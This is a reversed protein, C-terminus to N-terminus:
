RLKSKPGAYRVFKSPSVTHVAICLKVHRFILAALFRALYSFTMIGINERFRLLYHIFSGHFLGLSM